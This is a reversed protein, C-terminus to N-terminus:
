SLGNVGVQVFVYIGAILGPLFGIALGLGAADATEAMSMGQRDALWALMASAVTLYAAFVAFGQIIADLSKANFVADAFM